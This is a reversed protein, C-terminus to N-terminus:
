RLGLDQSGVDHAGSNPEHSFMWTEAGAFLVVYPSIFFYTFDQSTEALCSFDFIGFTACTLQSVRSLMVQFCSELAHIWSTMSADNSGPWDDHTHIIMPWDDVYHLL